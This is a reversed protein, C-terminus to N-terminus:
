SRSVLPQDDTTFAVPNAPAMEWFMWYEPQGDPTETDIWLGCQEPGISTGYGDMGVWMAAAYPAPGVHGKLTATPVVWQAGVSSITQGDPANSLYGGWAASDYALNIGPATPAAPAAQAAAPPSATAAATGTALALTVAAAAAVTLFRM